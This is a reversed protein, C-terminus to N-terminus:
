YEFQQVEHKNHRAYIKKRINSRHRNTPRRTVAIKGYDMIKNFVSTPMVQSGAPNQKVYAPALLTAESAQIGTSLPVNQGGISLTIPM